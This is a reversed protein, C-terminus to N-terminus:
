RTVERRGAGWAQGARNQGAEVWRKPANGERGGERWRGQQQQLVLQPAQLRYLRQSLQLVRHLVPAHTGRLHIGVAPNFYLIRRAPRCLMGLPQQMTAMGDDNPAILGAQRTCDLALWRPAHDLVRAHTFAHRRKAQEQAFECAAQMGYHKAARACTRKHPRAARVVSEGFVFRGVGVEGGWVCVLSSSKAPKSSSSCTPGPSSPLACVCGCACVHACTRAATADACMLGM